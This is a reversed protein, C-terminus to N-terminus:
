DGLSREAAPERALLDHAIMASALNSTTVRVVAKGSALGRRMARPGPAPLQSGLLLGVMAGHCFAVAACVYLTDLELELDLLLLVVVLVLSVRLGASVAGLVAGPFALSHGLSALHDYTPVDRIVLVQRVGEGIPTSCLAERAKEARRADSFLVEVFRVNLV